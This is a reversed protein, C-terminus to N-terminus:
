LLEKYQENIAKSVSANIAYLDSHSPNATNFEVLHDRIFFLLSSGFQQELSNDNLLVVFKNEGQKALDAKYTSGHYNFHIYM